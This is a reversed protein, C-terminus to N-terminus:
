KVDQGGPNGSSARTSAKRKSTHEPTSGHDKEKAPLFPDTPKTERPVVPHAEDGEPQVPFPSAKTGDDEDPPGVVVPVPEELPEDPAIEPGLAVFQDIEDPDFQLETLQYRAGEENLAEVEPPFMTRVLTPELPLVQFLNSVLDFIEQGVEEPTHDEKSKLFFIVSQEVKYYPM